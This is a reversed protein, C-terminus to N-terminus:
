ADPKHTAPLKRCFYVADGEQLGFYRRKSPPLTAGFDEVTVHFGASGLRSQYDRGYVRVHDEQGFLRLREAPSTVAPDEFTTERLVPVQLIAWGGTRLVRYLERMAQRDDPIHELVHSCLIIDFHQAPLPINTLDMRMMASQNSLDATIRDLGRVRALPADFAPEPAVHLLRKRTGDFLNTRALMFLWVLRHRELSGCRPCCAEPRPIVGFPEFGALYGRCLPCYRAHGPWRRLNGLWPRIQRLGSKLASM